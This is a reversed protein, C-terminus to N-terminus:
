WDMIRVIRASVAMFSQVSGATPDPDVVLEGVPEVVYHHRGHHHMLNHAFDADGDAAYVYVHEPSYGAANRGEWKGRKKRASPSKIESGVRLRADTAHYYSVGDPSEGPGTDALDLDVEATKATSTSCTCGNFHQPLNRPCPTTNM